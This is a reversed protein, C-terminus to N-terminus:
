DVFITKKIPLIFVHCNSLNSKASKLMSKKSNLKRKLNKIKDKILHYKGEANVEFLHVEHKLQKIEKKMKEYDNLADKIFAPCSRM